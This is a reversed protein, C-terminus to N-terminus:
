RVASKWGWISKKESVREEKEMLLRAMGKMSETIEAKKAVSSLVKGQNIASMTANYDNPIFWSIKKKISEEAEKISLLQGKQYRNIVIRVSEEHPYGMNWFTELLRRVNMLCPFSMLSVIFVDDSMELIKLSIDNLLQGNDIIILDFENKLLVLLQEIIEPTTSSFGNFVTPSPLVHVGSSHKSLVSMLYTRDVRSINKTIEGWNFVTKLDMFLPVEGFSLNMDILVASQAGMLEKLSVALNVAVTTTGVGGKSGLINIIKGNKREHRGTPADNFRDRYRVLSARVEEKNLPQTFFEKAGTRLAQILIEPETRSSTLFVEGVAGSNKLSHVLRFEKVIDRGIEMIMIDCQKQAGNNSVCYGELSAAIDEFEKKLDKNQMELRATITNEKM